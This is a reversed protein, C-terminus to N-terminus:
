ENDPLDESNCNEYRVLFIQSFDKGESSFQRVGKENYTPTCRNFAVYDGKRSVVLAYPKNVKYKPTIFVTKGFNEGEKVCTATIAGESISFITNGSPHWRLNDEVGNPLFTVQYPISDKFTTNKGKNNALIMFIQTKGNEDKNLYAIKKGDKSSRVIGSCYVKAIKYVNIGEPPMPYNECDGSSSTLINVDDKIEVVCLYDVFMGKEKVTGIFVREEGKLGVWSDGLARVFDGEQAKEMPVVKVLIAFYYKSEPLFKESEEFYGITRGYQPLLHDDYTCGIRKGNVSYEHRHTGGRHAGPSIGRECLTTRFDVWHKNLVQLNDDLTIICGRRNTKSYVYESLFEQYVDRIEPGHIFVLSYQQPHFSVAGIGPAPKIGLKIKPPQYIKTEKGTAIEVVEISVCNEIGYGLTGRTDYCLFKDDFSFNDNNDLEHNKSSYTLQYIPLIQIDTKQICQETVTFVVLIPFLFFNVIM